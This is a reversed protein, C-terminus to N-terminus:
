GSTTAPRCRSTASRRGRGADEDDLDSRHAAPPARLRRGHCRGLRPAASRRPRPRRSQRRRDAAGDPALRRRLRRRRADAPAHLPLQAAPRGPQPPRRHRQAVPLDSPRQRGPQTRSRSSRLGSSSSQADALRPRAARRRAHERSAARPLLPLGRSIDDGAGNDPERTLWRRFSTGTRKPRCCGCTRGRGSPVQQDPLDRRLARGGASRDERARDRLACLLLMLTTLRQQGDIVLFYSVGRRRRIRRRSFSAAWSTGSAATDGVGSLRYQELPRALAARAADVALTYQRQWIPVQFQKEGQVLAKLTATHVQMWGVTGTM